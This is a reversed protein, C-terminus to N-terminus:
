KLSSIQAKLRPAYPRVAGRIPQRSTYISYTHLWAQEPQLDGWRVHVNAEHNCQEQHSCIYLPMWQHGLCLLHLNLMVEPSLYTAAEKKWAGYRCVLILGKQGKNATAKQIWSRDCVM